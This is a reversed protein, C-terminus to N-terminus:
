HTRTPGAGGTAEFEARRFSLINALCSFREPISPAELLLQKEQAPFALANSLTNVLTEDDVDTFLEPRFAEAREPQVRRLIAGVNEIVDGRIATVRSREAEPYPDDLMTVLAVRYLRDEPRTPEDLIRFRQEGQLVLNYRGDPLQQSEGIVGCCGVEHIPPDGPMKSLHGPHVAVMGIRREGVLADRALARYRPEFLHLPTQIKPYLVVSSLPFIPLLTTDSVADEVTRSSTTSRL